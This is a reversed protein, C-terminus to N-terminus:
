QQAEVKALADICKKYARDISGNPTAQLQEVLYSLELRAAKCAVYLDPASAILRANAAQEDTILPYSGERDQRGMQYAIMWREGIPSMSLCNHEQSEPYVAYVGTRIDAKWPGPTFKPESM